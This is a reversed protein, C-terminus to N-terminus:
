TEHARLHTYSVTGGDESAYAEPIRVEVTIEDTGIGCINQIDVTFTTTAEPSAYPFQLGSDNM